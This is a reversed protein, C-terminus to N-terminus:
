HQHSPDADHVLVHMVQIDMAMYVWVAPLGCTLTLAPILVLLAPFRENRHWLKIAYKVAHIGTMFLMVSIVLLIAGLLFYEFQNSM